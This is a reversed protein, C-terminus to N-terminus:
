KKKKKKELLLRCVLDFRSQLESTHEESRGVPVCGVVTRPGVALPPHHVTCGRGATELPPGEGLVPGLVGVRRRAHCGDTWCLSTTGVTGTTGTTGTPGSATRLFSMVATVIPTTVARGLLVGFVTRTRGGPVPGVVPGPVVTGLVT